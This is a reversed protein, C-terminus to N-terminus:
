LNFNMDFFKRINKEKFALLHDQFYTMDGFNKAWTDIVNHEQIMLRFRLYYSIKNIFFLLFFLKPCGTKFEFLMEMYVLNLSQLNLTREIKSYTALVHDRFVATTKFNRLSLHFHHQNFM